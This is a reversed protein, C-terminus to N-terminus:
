MVCWNETQQVDLISSGKKANSVNYDNYLEKTLRM